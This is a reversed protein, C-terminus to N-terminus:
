SCSSRAVSFEECNHRRVARAIADIAASGPPYADLLCCHLWEDISIRGNKIVDVKMIYMIYICIYMYIYIDASGKPDDPRTSTKHEGKPSVRTLSVKPVLPGVGVWM